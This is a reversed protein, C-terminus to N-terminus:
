FLNSGLDPKQPPWEGKADRVFAQGDAKKGLSVQTGNHNEILQGPQMEEARLLLWGRITDDEDITLAFLGLEADALVNLMDETPSVNSVFKGDRTEIRLKLGM